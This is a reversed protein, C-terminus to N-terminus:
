KVRPAAVQNSTSFVAKSKKRYQWTTGRHIIFGTTLTLSIFPLQFSIAFPSKLDTNVPGRLADTLEFELSISGCHLDVQGLTSRFFLNFKAVAYILSIWNSISFILFSMLFILRVKTSLNKSERYSSCCKLIAPLSSLQPCSRPQSITSESRDCKCTCASYRWSSCGFFILAWCVFSTTFVLFLKFQTLTMVVVSSKFTKEM